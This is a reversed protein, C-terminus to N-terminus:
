PCATEEPGMGDEPLAERPAFEMADEPFVNTTPRGTTDEPPAPGPGEGYGLAQGNAAELLPLSLIHRLAELERQSWVSIRALLGKGKATLGVRVQRRDQPHPARQVLGARECRDVLEVATHHRIQLGEALDSISAWERGPQGKVALLLQHQQVTLGAEQAGRESLRLFRRLAYRFAFLAEYEEKSIDNPEADGM